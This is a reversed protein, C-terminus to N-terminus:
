RDKRNAESMTLIVFGAFAVSAAGVGVALAKLVFALFHDAPLMHLRGLLYHWDGDAAM